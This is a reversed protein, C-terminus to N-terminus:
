QSNEVMYDVAAYIEDDSCNMCGGKAIMGTGPVGNVGADHLAATGKAIRDAWAAVDGLVPAGGAGTTHCAMCAGNYVDEGSRPGSAAAVAAGGCSSDGQLCIEGVPKIRDEIASRQAGTLEVAAAAAALTAAALFVTVRTIM